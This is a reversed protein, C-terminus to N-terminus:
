EKSVLNTLDFLQQILLFFSLVPGSAGHKEERIM